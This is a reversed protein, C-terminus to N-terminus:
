INRQAATIGARKRTGAPAPSALMTPHCVMCARMGVNVRVCRPPSLSPKRTLLSQRRPMSKSRGRWCGECSTQQQSLARRGRRSWWTQSSRSQRCASMCMHCTRDHSSGAPLNTHGAAVPLRTVQAGTAECSLAAVATALSVLKKGAQVTLAAVGVSASAGGTLVAREDASISPPSITLRELEDALTGVGDAAARAAGSGHCADALYGLVDADTNACPLAPLANTNLLQTLYEAVQLRVTSNGSVVSLLKAFITARTQTASLQGSTSVASVTPTDESQFSKPAPSGKKLRESASTDLLLALGNAVKVADDVTPTYGVAGVNFAKVAMAHVVRNTCERQTYLYALTRAAFLCPACCLPPLQLAAATYGLPLWAINKAPGYTDRIAPM